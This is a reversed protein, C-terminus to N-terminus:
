SPETPRPCGFAEHSVINLRLQDDGNKVALLSERIKSATAGQKGIVLGPQLTHLHVVWSDGDPAFVLASLFYDLPRRTRTAEPELHTSVASTLRDHCERCFTLGAVVFATSGDDEVACLACNDKRTETTSAVSKEKSILLQRLGATYSEGTRATRQRVLRKRAKNKTM